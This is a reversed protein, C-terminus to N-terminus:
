KGGEGRLAQEILTAYINAARQAAPRQRRVAELRERARKVEVAATGNAEPQETWRRWFHHLQGRLWKM